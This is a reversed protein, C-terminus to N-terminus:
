RNFRDFNSLWVIVYAVFLLGSMVVVALWAIGLRKFGAAADVQKGKAFQWILVIVVAIGLTVLLFTVM